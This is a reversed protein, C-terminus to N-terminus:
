QTSLLEGTPFRLVQCGGPPLAMVENGLEFRSADVPGTSDTILGFITKDPLDLRVPRAQMLAAAWETHPRSFDHVPSTVISDGLRNLGLRQAERDIVAALYDAEDEKFWFSITMGGVLWFWDVMLTGEWTEIATTLAFRQDRKIARM